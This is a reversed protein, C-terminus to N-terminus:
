ERASFNFELQKRSALYDCLHVFKEMETKPEPLVIKSRSNTTWQGMHSAICACIERIHSSDNPSIRTLKEDLVKAALVPHEHTTFGTHGELGQKWGDHLILAALMQDQETDTFRYIRFLEHAIGVAAKVHRMLGGIGLAYAPHYKGTSSAAVSYFYPPILSVGEAALRKVDENRILSLEYEFDRADM